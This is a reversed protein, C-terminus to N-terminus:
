FHKSVGQKLENFMDSVRAKYESRLYRCRFRMYGGFEVDSVQCITIVEQRRGFENRAVSTPLPTQFFLSGHRIMAANVAEHIM